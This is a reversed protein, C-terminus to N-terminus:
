SRAAAVWKRWVDQSHSCTLRDTDGKVNIDRAVLRSRGGEGQLRAVEDESVVQRLAAGAVRWPPTRAFSSRM